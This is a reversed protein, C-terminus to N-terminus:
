VTEKPVCDLLIENDLLYSKMHFTKAQDINNISDLQINSIGSGLVMPAIHFQLRNILNEKTFTSVVQSGGEIMLSRVGKQYLEHCIDNASFNGQENENLLVTDRLSQHNKISSSAIKLTEGPSHFIKMNSSIKNSRDLVVRLPNDGSVHRVTLQPNDTDVTNKGVLVAQTLARLRHSHILNAQNSIWQSSGNQTAIKGDISQALHSFVFLKEQKNQHYQHILLSAYLELSKIYDEHPMHNGLIKYPNLPNADFIILTNKKALLDIQNHSQTHPLFNWGQSQTNFQFVFNTFSLSPNQIAKKVQLLSQWTLDDINNACLSSFPM